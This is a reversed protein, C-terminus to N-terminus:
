LTKNSFLQTLHRVTSNWCLWKIKILHKPHFYRNIRFNLGNTFLYRLSRFQQNLVFYNLAYVIFTRISTQLVLYFKPVIIINQVNDMTRYEDLFVTKNIKWFVVNRLSSERETKLYYSSLQAWNISSTRIEPRRHWEWSATYLGFVVYVM